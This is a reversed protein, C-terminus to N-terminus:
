LNLKSRVSYDLELTLIPAYKTSGPRYAVKIATEIDFTRLINVLVTNALLM